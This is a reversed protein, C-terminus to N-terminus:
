CPCFFHWDNESQALKEPRTEEEKWGRKVHWETDSVALLDYYHTFDM